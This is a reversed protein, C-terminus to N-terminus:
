RGHRTKTVVMDVLELLKAQTMRIDVLIGDITAVGMERGMDELREDNTLTMKLLGGLRGLDAHLKMVEDMRDLDASSAPPSGLALTRTYASLSLRCSKAAKAIAEKEHPKVYVKIVLEKPKM